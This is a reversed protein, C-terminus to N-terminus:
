RSLRFFGGPNNTFYYKYPSNAGALIAYPGNVNTAVELSSPNPGDNWQLDLWGGGARGILKPMVTLSSVDNTGIMWPRADPLAASSFCNTFIVNTAHMICYGYAPLNNWDNNEPYEGAYEYPAPPNTSVGGAFAINVNDFVINQLRYIVGNTEEGFIPCGRTDTMNSGTINQFTVGNVTGAPGANPRRTGLIVFIGNQCQSFNIGQFLVNAIGGGDVTEVAMASLAVNTLACNVFTINTFGGTSSTGLKFGNEQSRTVVCNTVVTDYVGRGNGSKLCLADDGSDITCGEVIVHWCDVVDCGDRNNGLDNNNVTVNSITLYDSQMNVLSWMASDVINISQINVQNCLVTFIPMPRSAESGTQFYYRGNGNITGGGTITVNTCNLAYVLAEDCIQTNSNNVPPSLTPYNANTGSGMLTATPDIYLTMNNTLFITGSLFTGNHLWVYGNVPCANIAAQIAMTNMTVGDGVAGYKDADVWLANTSLVVQTLTNASALYSGSNFIATIVNNGMPLTNIGLSAAGNVVTNTTLAVGNTLFTVTGTANTPTINATFTISSGSISPNSSSKLDMMTASSAALDSERLSELQSLTLANTYISADDIYGAFGRDLPFRNGITLNTSIGTSPLANFTSSGFASVPTSSDGGYFNVAGNSNPYDWTVAWFVWTNTEEFLANNTTSHQASGGGIMQLTLGGGVGGQVEFGGASGNLCSMLRNASTEPLGINAKYWGCLTFAQLNDLNTDHSGAQAGLSDGGGQSTGASQNDCLDSFNGSVGAGAGSSRAGNMAQLSSIDGATSLPFWPPASENFNYYLIQASSPHLVAFWAFLAITTARSFAKSTM